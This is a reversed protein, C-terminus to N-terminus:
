AGGGPCPVDKVWGAILWRSVSDKRPLRKKGSPATGWEGFGRVEEATFWGADELERADVDIGVAGERQGHLLRDTDWLLLPTCLPRAGKGPIRTKREM